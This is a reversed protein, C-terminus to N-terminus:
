YAQASKADTNPIVKKAFYGVKARTNNIGLKGGLLNIEKDVVRMVKNGYKKGKCYHIFGLELHEAVAQLFYERMDAPLRPPLMNGAIANVIM